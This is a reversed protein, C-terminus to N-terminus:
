GCIAMGVLRRERGDLLDADQEIFALLLAVEGGLV